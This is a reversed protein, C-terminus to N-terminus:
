RRRLRTLWVSGEGAVALESGESAYAIRMDTAAGPFTGRALWGGDDPSEYVTWSTGARALLFLSDGTAVLDLAACSCGATARWTQRDGSVFARGDSTVIHFTGRAYALGRAEVREPLDVLSWSAGDGSAAVFDSPGSFAGVIGDANSAFGVWPASGDAMDAAETWTEGDWSSDVRGGDIGVFFRGLGPSWHLAHAQASTDDDLEAVRWAYSDSSVLLKGDGGVSHSAVLAQDNAAVALLPMWSNPRYSWSGTTEVWLGPGTVIGGVAVWGGAAPSFSLDRVEPTATEHVLTEAFVLEETVAHGGCGVAVLAVAFCRMSCM